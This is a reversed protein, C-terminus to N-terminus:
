GEVEGREGVRRSGKGEGRKGKSTHARLVALPRPSREVNYGGGAPDLVSGRGFVFETCELARLFVSTAIM